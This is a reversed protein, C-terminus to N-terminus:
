FIKLFDEVVIENFFVSNSVFTVQKKFLNRQSQNQSTRWTSRKKLNNFYRGYIDM